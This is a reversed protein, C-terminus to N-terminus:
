DSPELGPGRETADIASSAVAARLPRRTDSRRCATSPLFTSFQPKFPLREGWRINQRRGRTRTWTDSALSTGSTAAKNCPAGPELTTRATELTRVWSLLLPSNSCFISSVKEASAGEVLRVNQWRICRQWSAQEFSCVITCSSTNAAGRYEQPRGWSPRRDVSPSM